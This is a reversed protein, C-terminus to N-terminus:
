RENDTRILDCTTSFGLADLAATIAHEVAVVTPADPVIPRNARSVDWDRPDYLTVRGMFSAVKGGREDKPDDPLETDDTM